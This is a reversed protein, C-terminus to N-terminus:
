HTTSPTKEHNIQLFCGAHSIVRSITRRQRASLCLPVEASAAASDRPKNPQGTAARGGLRHAGGRTFYVHQTFLLESLYIVM